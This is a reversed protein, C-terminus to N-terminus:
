ATVGSMEFSLKSVVATEMWQLKNLCNRTRWGLSPSCEPNCFYTGRVGAEWSRKFTVPKM